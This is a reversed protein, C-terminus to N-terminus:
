PQIEFLDNDIYSGYYDALFLVDAKSFYSTFWHPQTKSNPFLRAFLYACMSEAAQEEQVRFSLLNPRKDFDLLMSQIAHGMEHCLIVQGTEVRNHEQLAIRKTTTCCWGGTNENDNGVLDYGVLEGAVAALNHSDILKKKRANAVVEDLLRFEAQSILAPSVAHAIVGEYDHLLRIATM